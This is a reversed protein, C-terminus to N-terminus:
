GSRSMRFALIWVAIRFSSDVDRNKLPTLVGLNDLLGDYVDVGGRKEKM